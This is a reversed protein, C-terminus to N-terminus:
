LPSLFACLNVSLLVAQLAAIATSVTLVAMSKYPAFLAASDQCRCNLQLCCCGM